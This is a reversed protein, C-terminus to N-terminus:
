PLPARGGHLGAIGAPVRGTQIEPVTSFNSVGATGPHSLRLDIRGPMGGSKCGSRTMMYTELINSKIHASHNRWPISTALPHPKTGREPRASGHPVAQGNISLGDHGDIDGLVQVNGPLDAWGQPIECVSLEQSRRSAASITRVLGAQVILTSAGLGLSTM